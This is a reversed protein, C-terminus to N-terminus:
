HGNKAHGSETRQRPLKQLKKAARDAQRPATTTRGQRTTGTDARQGEKMEEEGETQKPRLRSARQAVPTIGTTRQKVDREIPRHRLTSKTFSTKVFWSIGVLVRQM